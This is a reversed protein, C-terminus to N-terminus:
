RPSFLFLSVQDCNQLLFFFLEVFGDFGSKKGPTLLLQALDLPM